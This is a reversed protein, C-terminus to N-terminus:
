SGQCSPFPPLSCSPCPSSANQPSPYPHPSAFIYPQQTYEYIARQYAFAGPLAIKSSFKEIPYGTPANIGPDVNPSIQLWINLKSNAKCNTENNPNFTKIKLETTSWCGHSLACNLFSPNPSVPPTSPHIKGDIINLYHYKEGILLRKNKEFTLEQGYNRSSAVYKSSINQIFNYLDDEPPKIRRDIPVIVIRNGDIRVFFDFGSEECALTILKLVTTESSSVRAVNSVGGILATVDILLCSGSIPMQIPQNNIGELATKILMSKRPSSGSKMFDKCKDGSDCYDNAISPELNHLVNIVNPQLVSPTDLYYDNLIVYVSDLVSRADTLSVQYKYGNSSESYQHNTLLGRFCFGGLQFTYINGLRGDYACRTPSCSFSPNPSYSPSPMPSCPPCATDKAEVLDISVSSENGNLGLKATFGLVYCNLFINNTISCDYCDNDILPSPLPNKLIVGCEASPHIDPCLVGSRQPYWTGGAALCAGENSPPDTAFFQVNNGIQYCYEENPINTNPGILTCQSGTPDTRSDWTQPCCKLIGYDWIQCFGPITSPLCSPPCSSCPVSSPNPSVSPFPKQNNFIPSM